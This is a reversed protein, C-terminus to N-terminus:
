WDYRLYLGVGYSTADSRFDGSAQLGLRLPEGSFAEAGLNAVLANKSQTNTELTFSTAPAGAFAATVGKDAQRLDHGWRIDASPVFKGLFGTEAVAALQVGATSRVYYDDHRAFRLNYGGAGTETYSDTRIHGADLGAVPRIITNGSEIAYGAEVNAAVTTGDYDANARIPGPVLRSSKFANFAVGIQASLDVPGALTTGYAGLLWSDAEGDSGARDPDFEVRAYGFAVGLATKEGAAFDIGGQLGGGKYSFGNARGAESDVDGFAGFTRGWLGAKAGSRFSPAGILSATLDGAMGSSALQTTPEGGRWAAQMNGLRSSVGGQFLQMLQQMAFGQANATDPEMGAMITRIDDEDLTALYGLLARLEADAAGGAEIRDLAAAIVAYRPTAFSEYTTANRAFSLFVDNAGYTVVPTLLNSSLASIVDSFGGSVGGSASLVTYTLDSRFAKGLNNVVIGGDLAATGSIAIRSVGDYDIGATIFGAAGQAFDGNITMTGISLANDVPDVNMAFLFGDNTFLGTTATGTGFVVGGNTISTVSTYTGLEIFGNTIGTIEFNIFRGDDLLFRNDPDSPLDINLTDAGDGGDVIGTVSGGWWNFTDDGDGLEVSIASTGAITGYNTVIDNWAGILRIAFGDLGQITGHNVIETEAFAAGGNSDDVLIGNNAGSILANEYDADGNRIFGGGFAIGESKSPTFEGPKIGISGTGQIVGYNYITGTLDIDVGDGDGFCDPDADCYALNATGTITGYNVVTGTGDSGIGSGNAGTIVGENFVTISGDGTIGHRAGTISGTEYNNVSGDHSQFDIADNSNDTGPLSSQSYITGYNEVTGSAGPRVADANTSYIIGTERNIITTTAGVSHRVGDLDIAQGGATGLTRITGANDIVIDGVSVPNGSIRVADDDSEILADESNNVTFSTITSANNVNIARMGAAQARIIGENDILITGSGPRIADDATSEIIGTASNFIDVIMTGGVLTAFDLAQGGNSGITGDNDITITGGLLAANIRFADNGTGIVSAGEYNRLTLSRATTNSSSDIARTSGQITGSNYINVGTGAANTWNIATGSVDLAADEEVTGTDSGSVSKAVTDTTGTTVTFSAASASAAWLLAIASVTCFRSAGRMDRLRAKGYEFFM